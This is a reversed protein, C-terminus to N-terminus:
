QEAGIAAISKSTSLGANASDMIGIRYVTIARSGRHKEIYHDAYGRWWRRQRAEPVGLSVDEIFIDGAAAGDVAISYMQPSHRDPFVTVPTPKDANNKGPQTEFLKEKGLYLAISNGSRIVPMHIRLWRHSRGPEVKFDIWVVGNNKRKEVTLGARENEFAATELLADGDFRGLISPLDGIHFEGTQGLAPHVRNKPQTLLWFTQSLPTYDLRVVNAPEKVPSLVPQIAYVGVVAMALTAVSYGFLHVRRENRSVRSLGTMSLAIPAFLIPLLYGAHGLGLAFEILVANELALWGYGTLLVLLSLIFATQPLATGRWVPPYFLLVAAPILPFLFLFAFGPALTVTIVALAAFYILAGVTLAPVSIRRTLLDAIVAPVLLGAIWVLAHGAIPRNSWPPASTQLKAILLMLGYVAAAGLAIAAMLLIPVSLTRIPAIAKRQVFVYILLAALLVIALLKALPVAVGVVVLGAIDTYVRNYEARLAGLDPYGTLADMLQQTTVAQHRLSAASVNDLSDNLTHYNEEGGIFAMNYGPIGRKKFVSFDTGNNMFEYIQPFMSNSKPRSAHGAYLAVIENNGTSTEFMLSPGRTGRAEINVVAGIDGAFRHYEAFAQAGLSGVEEADSFLVVPPNPVTRGKYSALIEIAIAVNVGDDSVGPSVNASDYHADLLVGNGDQPAQWYAIINHVEGCIPPATCVYRAQVEAHAGLAELQELIRSRLRANESDGIPHPGMDSYLRQLRDTVVRQSPTADEPVAPTGSDHVAFLIATLLVVAALYCGNFRINSPNM